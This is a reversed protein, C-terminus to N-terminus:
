DLYETKLIETSTLKWKQEHLKLTHVSTTRTNKFKYGDKVNTATTVQVVQVKATTSTNELVKLSQLKYDMDTNEFLAVMQQRTFEASEDSLLLTGMYKEVNEQEAYKLNDNIAKEISKEPEHSCGMLGFVVLM